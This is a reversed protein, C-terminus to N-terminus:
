ERLLNKLTKVKERLRKNEKKIRAIETPEELKDMFIKYLEDKITSELSNIQNEQTNIKAILQSKSSKWLDIKKTKKM